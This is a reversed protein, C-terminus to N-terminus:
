FLYVFFNEQITVALGKLCEDVIKSIIPFDEWFEDSLIVFVHEVLLHM